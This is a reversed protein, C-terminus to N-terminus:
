NISAAPPILVEAPADTIFLQACDVKDFDYHQGCFDCNVGV